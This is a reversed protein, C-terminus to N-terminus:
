EALADDIIQRVDHAAFEYEMKGAELKALDLLNNLLKMLREGSEGIRRFYQAAKAANPDSATRDSGLRAFSLIAHMPTRLEHSMNSLFESKARNAAESEDKAKSLEETRAAVEEQLLDRHERLHATMQLALSEARTRQTAFGLMIRHMLFTLLLAGFLITLSMSSYLPLAGPATFILRWLRGAVPIDYTRTMADQTSRKSPDAVANDFLPVEEASTSLPKSDREFGLDQLRVFYKDLVRSQMSEVVLDRARFM